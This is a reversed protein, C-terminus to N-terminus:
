RIPSDNWRQLTVILHATAPLSTAGDTMVAQVTLNAVNNGGQRGPNPGAGAPVFLGTQDIRGGYVADEAAKADADYNTVSWVAPMVGIRVDDATGPQGDPGNLYGVAEFQAPVAAVPGGNDGVRAINYGPEVRVQDPRDYVVLGGTHRTTGVTIDHPGTAAQPDALAVVSVSDSTANLVKGVTVGPGLDVPGDLGTGVITVVTEVAIKLFRPQVALIAPQGSRVAAADGGIAAGDFFWRGSLQTGDASVQYVERVAQEGLTGAGRWEYGTYVVSEGHGELTSGDAFVFRRQVAYQDPGTPEVTLTGAYDGKGPRHGAIRWNGALNVPARGQWATWAASAFPFKQGLRDPLETTAVRWWERDRSSAQYELTPWQGVHTHVLKLWESADRRQLGTRAYSHCRACYVALDRDDANEITGPRQEIVARFPATEEPALGQTDALYKVLRRQDAENLFVYHWQRMRRLTQDWGEPTKRIASIRAFRGDAGQDHCGGCRNGILTLVPTESKAAEDACAATAAMSMGIATAVLCVTRIM